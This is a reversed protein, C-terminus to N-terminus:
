KTINASLPNFGVSSVGFCTALLLTKELLKLSPAHPSPPSTYFAFMYLTLLLSVKVKSDVRIKVRTDGNSAKVLYKSLPNWCYFSNQYCLVLNVTVVIQIWYCCMIMSLETM